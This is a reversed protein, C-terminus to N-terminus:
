YFFEDDPLKGGVSTEDFDLFIQLLAYIRDKGDRAPVFTYNAYPISNVIVNATLGLNHLECLRAAERVNALTKEYSLSYEDLFKNLVETKNEAFKRSAVMVTLPYNSNRTLKKYENQLSIAYKVSGDKLTAVTAFPEPVVAYDIKGALLQAALQATPISYNLNVGDQINNDSYSPIGNKSLLYRLMYDPTAGQGAVYVTKGVLDNFNKINSDKTILVINGEGTIATCILSKKSSNYVKAAVNAPLFGIDIENKILKPLLSAADPCNEYELYEGNISVVDEMLFSLPVCSPGNLVGVRVQAFLISYSAIILAILFKKM